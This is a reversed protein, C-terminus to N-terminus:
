LRVKGQDYNERFWAITRQLGERIPTPCELGLSRLRRNDFIKEKKGDPKSDDWVIKGGYGTFERIIEALERISTARATSINVPESSSYNELFWPFLAAADGAYVFDRSPSGTGWLVVEPKKGIGAEHFKRIMAPIVHADELSYNDFEGYINGPILVISDFGHQRRYAESQVLAVKKAVSYPANESPPLGEWMQDEGIPSVANAPYSCGGMVALLKEAGARWAEHITLTNIVLNRYYFDAPYAINAGLGGVYGALAVVRRPRYDEFMKRVRSQETLDYDASSLGVVNEAGYKEKLVPLVHSGLFGGAGTVLIEIKKM